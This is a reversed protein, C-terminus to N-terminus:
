TSAKGAAFFECEKRQSHIGVHYPGASKEKKGEYLESRQGNSEGRQARKVSELCALNTGMRPFVRGWVLETHGAEKKDNLVLREPSVM